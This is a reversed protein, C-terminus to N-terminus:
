DVEYHTLLMILVIQASHLTYNEGVSKGGEFVETDCIAISM